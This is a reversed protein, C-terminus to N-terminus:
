PNVRMPVRARWLRVGGVRELAGDMDAMWEAEPVRAHIHVSSAGGTGAADPHYVFSRGASAWRWFREFATYLRGAAEDATWVQAPPLCDFEVARKTHTAWQYAREYGGVSTTTTTQSAAVSYTDNGSPSSPLWEISSQDPATAYYFGGAGVVAGYSAGRYGLLDHDFTHALDFRLDFDHDFKIVHTANSQGPGHFFHDWGAHATATLLAQRVAEAIDDAPYADGDFHAWYTGPAVTVLAGMHWGAGDHWDVVFTDNVGLEIEVWWGFRAYTAM